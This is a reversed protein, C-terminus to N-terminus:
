PSLFKVCVPIPAELVQGTPTLRGSKPDIKFVVLNNSNQNAAILVSGTPDIGFNRPVKGQTPVHEILKLTGDSSNVALVVISDHGRNSGYLFKGGPHAQVEATSNNGQFGEPITSITQSEQLQGRTGDYRFATITSQMENIVYAFHGSPHFTFHRPGAGPQLKAFPPDHPALTGRVPDFRYVLLQDLGLDAAIAFRNDPSLNISHAHPGRQRRPDAGSGSHQVFASAEALRGDNGIPLAAISGGGYNALLAGQGTKDVTIYCPGSGRSSVTNLYTLRGTSRDISFASASGAKQGEYTDVENVAYLFRRNPHITLFSPSPTEAVLGIESLRASALDLRYAYIGKSAGRTYTGVYVM